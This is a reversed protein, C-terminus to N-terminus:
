FPLKIENEKQQEIIWKSYDREFKESIAERVFRSIPIHNKKARNLLELSSESLRFTKLKMKIYAM